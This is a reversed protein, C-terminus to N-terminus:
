TVKVFVVDLNMLERNVYIVNTNMMKEMDKGEVMFLKTQMKVRPTVVITIMITAIMTMIM